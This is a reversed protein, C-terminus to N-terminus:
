WWYDLKTLQGLLKEGGVANQNPDYIWKTIMIKKTKRKIELLEEPKRPKWPVSM